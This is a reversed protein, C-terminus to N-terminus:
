RGAPPPESAELAVELPDFEAARGAFARDLREVDSHLAKAHTYRETTSLKSHGMWSKLATTDLERVVLSGFSHRLDHFRLPRLGAAKQARRLRRRIASDDLPEGLPGSFVLDEQDVFRGREALQALAAAAATALPVTRIKGWKPSEVQGASMAAAVTLAGREFSVQRWRLARLEGLRLGTFAAVTYLAADQEDALGRERHEDDSVAPRRPDRHRGERAARALAAVEEPEYFDLVGAAPERRKATARAVNETIGFREPRRAAHELIASVVQRHVNVTRKGVPEGDIRELFREVQGATISRLERGGFEAMIRGATRRGRKRVPADAATLMQRYNALTSPKVGDVHELRHLWDAAAEDFTPESEPRVTALDVEHEDIVRRMEVIAAKEDLFGDHARGRRKRWAGDPDRDAWAPGLRRKVQRRTSDRWKAYYAPGGEREVVILAGSANRKSM